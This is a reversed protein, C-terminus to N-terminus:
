KVFLKKVTGDSMKLINLGKQSADMRQGNVNYRDIVTADYATTGFEISEIGDSEFEEIYKFKNWPFKAEYLPKSGKPVCLITGEYLGEFVSEDIDFPVPVNFVIRFLSRCLFFAYPEIEKVTSPISVETLDSGYFAGAGISTVGEPINCSWKGSGSGGSGSGSGGSGGGSYGAFAGSGIRVTGEPITGDLSKYLRGEWYDVYDSEIFRAFKKWPEAETYRETTGFPVFLRCHPYTDETFVNENIDLPTEMGLKVAGLKECGDFCYDGIKTVTSPITVTELDTCNEFSRYGISIVGTPIDFEVLGKCGSFAYDKIETISPPLIVIPLEECGAFAYEGITEITSPFVVTNITKDTVDILYNGAYRLGDSEGIEFINKFDEWPSTSAYLEKTGKPVYLIGNLYSEESFGDSFCQPTTSENIVTLLDTCREFAGDGISEVNEGITVSTMSSCGYFADDGISTVSNPIHISSLARCNHFASEGISVVSNPITISSLRRCNLFAEDGISVVSNPITISILYPSNFWESEISEIGEGLNISFDRCGDFAYEGISIVSAPIYITLGECNDFVNDGITEVGDPIIINKLKVCDSFAYNDITKVSNPVNVYTLGNCCFVLTEGDKTLCCNNESMYTENESAVRLETMSSCGAFAQKGIDSVNKPIVISTLSNCGYFANNGITVISEPFVISTLGKVDPYDPTTGCFQFAYEGITTVSNPITVSTLFSCDHFARYGIETVEYTKGNYTISSPIKVAGRYAQRNEGVYDHKYTVIANDGELNYYIGDVKCSYAYSNQWFLSLLCFLISKLYFRKM